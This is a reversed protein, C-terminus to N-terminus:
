ALIRLANKYCIKEATNNGFKEIIAQTLLQMDAANKFPLECEMGDFDTGLAAVEEGGVKILHELHRIIDNIETKGTGNLFYSYFPIGIVGGSNAIQKIQYDYLNRSHDLIERCASHTAIFPKKTIEAVDSFGGLNLHSVDAIIDTSILYDIVEKGFQKLSKLANAKDISHPYGLCNEGNHILGLIKVGKEELLKIREINNNLLEANEVTLIAKIESDFVFAESKDVIKFYNEFQLKFFDFAKEEKIEPPTYIAFCQAMYDGNILANKSIHGNNEKFSYNKDESFKFLTDCHLDIIKM